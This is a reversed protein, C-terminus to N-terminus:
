APFFMIIVSYWFWLCCYICQWHDHCLHSSNLLIMIDPCYGSVEQWSLWYLHHEYQNLLQRCLYCPVHSGELWLNFHNATRWLVEGLIYFWNGCLFHRLKFFSWCTYKERKLYCLKTGLWSLIDFETDGIQWIKIIVYSMFCRFQTIPICILFESVKYEAHLGLNCTMGLHIYAHTCNLCSFSTAVFEEISSNLTNLQNINRM